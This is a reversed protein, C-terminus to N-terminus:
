FESIALSHNITTLISFVHEGEISRCAPTQLQQLCPPLSNSLQTPQPFILSPLTRLIDLSWRRPQLLLSNWQMAVFIRLTGLKHRVIDRVIFCPTERLMQAFDCSRELFNYHWANAALPFRRYGTLFPVSAFRLCTREHLNTFKLQM